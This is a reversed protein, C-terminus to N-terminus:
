ASDKRDVNLTYTYYMMVVNEPNPLLEKAKEIHCPQNDCTFSIILLPLISNKQHNFCLILILYQFCFQLCFDFKMYSSLVM